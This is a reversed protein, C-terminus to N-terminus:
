CGCTVLCAEKVDCCNYVLPVRVIYTALSVNLMKVFCLYVLIVLLSRLTSQIVAIIFLFCYDSTVLIVNSRLALIRCGPNTNGDLRERTVVQIYKM